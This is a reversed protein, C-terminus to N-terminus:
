GDWKWLLHVAGFSLQDPGPANKISQSFLARKVVRETVSQHAQRPPPLENHQEYVNPPFSQRRLMQEKEAITIAQKGGKDSVAQVTMGAHPNACKAARCGEAGILTKFCDNWM